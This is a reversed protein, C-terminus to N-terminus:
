QVFCVSGLYSCENYLDGDGLYYHFEVPPVSNFFVDPFPSTLFVCALLLSKLSKKVTLIKTVFPKQM